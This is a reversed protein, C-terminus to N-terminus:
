IFYFLVYMTNAPLRDIDVFYPICGSALIEYHRLCDWGKKKRTVCYYSHRYNHFYRVDPEKGEVTGSRQSHTYTHTNGPILDAFDNDKWGVSSTFRGAPISFGMPWIEFTNGSRTYKVPRVWEVHKRPPQVIERPTNCDLTLKDGLSTDFKVIERKPKADCRYDILLKSNCAAIPQDETIKFVCNEKGSCSEIVSNTIDIAAVAAKERHNFTHIYTDQAMRQLTLQAGAGNVLTPCNCVIAAALVNITGGVDSPDPTYIIVEQKDSGSKSQLQRLQTEADRRSATIEEVKQALREIEKKAATLLKNEDFEQRTHLFPQDSPTRVNFVLIIPLLLVPLLILYTIRM